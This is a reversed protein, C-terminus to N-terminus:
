DVFSFENTMLLAQCYEELPTLASTSANRVPRIQEAGKLYRLGSAIEELTPDRGLLMGYAVIIKARGDSITRIEERKTFAKAEEVLFPSNMMFLAQQPVTTRYRQASSTDPSAFDFTRFLGQLNQRDVFGYLTRRTSYPATTIEVAPGGIGKDLQGSIFLISDRLAELDLRQRNQHALLRNEPDLRVAQGSGLSSQQYVSSLMIEKHLRKLSWGSDVFSAALWDLLEPHTPLEGRMGFDGPTRVIGYGFHYLWVRNVLVRATLPNDKNAIARALELRGSGDKFPQRGDSAICELFRRPVSEGRNDPSGRIFVYPDFPKDNDQLAMAFEPPPPTNKALDDLTARLAPLNKRADADFEGVLKAFQGSDPLVEPRISQLVSKVVDPVAAPTKEIRDRLIAVQQKVTADFKAQTERVSTNHKEYPESIRRPSIAPPPNPESSSAFVGYLSYYDKASIPDFKHNHCRACAVTLAMLGRCTVDIRDDNIFVPDNLFRRGVTLFGLAALPRRDDGLPLRDAAIQQIIFQDYPLDENIARVVWDRYTYANHYVADETFVYGKTDAYRAVDLWHRGWREGYAPSALLRDIVKEFAKSSTDNLFVRIDDPTPPLGTLDFSARRILTRRDAQPAPTLSAAELRALIFQDIPSRIWARNKVRPPSARKVPRFSWHAARPDGVRPVSGGTQSAVEKVEPWPAGVRVWDTLAAIEVTKLKGGPPMKLASSYRIAKIMLSGDPDGSTIAPGNGGGALIYARSDLRLSGQQRKPGHCGVCKEVLVPRVNTEFFEAEQATPVGPKAPANQAAANAGVITLSVTALAGVTARIREFVSM